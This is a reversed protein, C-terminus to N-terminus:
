VSAETTGVQVVGREVNADWWAAISLLGFLALGVERRGHVHDSFLSDAFGRVFLHDFVASQRAAEWYPAGEAALISRVPAGFGSKARRVVFEPVGSDAAAQRFLAKGNGLRVHDEAPHALAASTVPESLFPVRLEVSSRMSAKDAYLLNLGPLFLARDCTAAAQLPTGGRRLVSAALSRHPEAVEDLSVEPCLRGWDRESFYSQSAWAWDAPSYGALRALKNARERFRRPVPWHRSSALTRRVSAPIRQLAKIAQHREYGLFLEEVGVGSLLVTAEASASRALSALTLAAPDGFPSEVTAVLEPLRRLLGVDLETWRVERGLAAAVRAAYPGDDAFPERRRDLGSAARAGIFPGTFGMRDLELALWTSDLGGSLLLAVPVDARVQRQVSLSVAAGIDGGFREPATWATRWERDPLRLERVVGPPATSCRRWGTRPPPTWLFFAAQAVAVIDVDGALGLSRLARLESAFATPRGSPDTSVYLPKIGFRDRGALVTGDPRILTFSFMGDLQNLLDPYDPQLLLEYLVETDGQTHFRVGRRRLSEALEDTNYLEGNYVLLGRDKDGYPQDSRRDLDVIALRRFHLEVQWGPGALTAHGQSDPGRHRLLDCVDGHGKTEGFVVVFGCM